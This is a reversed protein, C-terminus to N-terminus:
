KKGEAKAIASKIAALMKETTQALGTYDPGPDLDNDRVAEIFSMTLNQVECIFDYALHSAALLEPANAILAANAKGEESGDLWDMSATFDNRIAFIARDNEDEATTCLFMTRPETNENMEWKWPGPTHKM